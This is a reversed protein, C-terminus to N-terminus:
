QSDREFGEGDDGTKDAHTVFDACQFAGFSQDAEREVGGVRRDRAPGVNVLRPVQRLGHRHFSYPALSRGARRLGPSATFVLAPQAGTSSSRETPGDVTVTSCNTWNHRVCFRDLFALELTCGNAWSYKGRGTREGNLFVGVYVDGNAFEL